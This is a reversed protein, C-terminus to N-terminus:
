PMARQSVFQSFRNPIWKNFTEGNTESWTKGTRDTAPTTEKAAFSNEEEKGNGRKSATKQAQIYLSITVSNQLWRYLRLMPRNQLILKNCKQKQSHVVQKWGAMGMFCQKYCLYILFLQFMQYSSSKFHMINSKLYIPLFIETYLFFIQLSNM